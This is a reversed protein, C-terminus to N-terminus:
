HKRPEREVTVLDCCRNIRLELLTTTDPFIFTPRGGEPAARQLVINQLNKVDYSIGDDVDPVYVRMSLVADDGLRTRADALVAAIERVDVLFRRHSADASHEHGERTLAEAARVSLDREAKSLTSTNVVAGSTKAGRQVFFELTYDPIPNGLDDIAHVLFQQYQRKATARYTEATVAEMDKMLEKFEDPGCTLARRLTAGVREDSAGEVISGHDLGQLVGFAFEAVAKRTSWQYPTDAPSGVAKTCDLTLKMTDLSAGAIVVVGDTGAKNVWGRMGDFDDAGVLVTVQIGAASYPSARRGVLDGHALRWQFPSGLELGDLIKQGVELFDGWGWRGKVLQGLFSRGRHALPSGFNAPALMVIRRVPCAPTARHEAAPDRERRLYYRTIWHRIVLGGTSHVIVNLDCLPEGDRSIFGRDVFRDNLGDAVDDYTIDDERSEYDAFYITDVPGLGARALYKKIDKFSDSCDSWGHIIVTRTPIAM